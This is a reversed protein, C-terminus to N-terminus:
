NQEKANSWELISLSQETELMQDNTKEISLELKNLVACLQEYGLEIEEPDGKETSSSMEEFSAEALKM